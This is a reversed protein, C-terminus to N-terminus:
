LHRSQSIFSPRLDRRAGSGEAATRYGAYLPALGSAWDQGVACSRAVRGMERRRAPDRVLAATGIILDVASRCVISSANSVREAASGTEMVVCPLGAAQAELVAHAASDREGPSVFLDASALIEPMRHHPVDGIFLADSCRTELEARGPGDGVVILRHMPHSRRLAVELSLLRQVGHDQSLRGAYIVAPREESVRWEQRLVVSRRLPSFADSDVGPRWTVLATPVASIRIMRDRAAISPLFLLQCSRYVMRAYTRQIWSGSAFTTDVTAVVPLGLRWAVYMAEPATATGAVHIVTVNERAARTLLAATADARRSRCVYRSFQIDPPVFREIADMTTRLGTDPDDGTFLGIRM